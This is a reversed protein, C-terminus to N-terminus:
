HLMGSALFPMVVAAVCLLAVLMGSIIWAKTSM